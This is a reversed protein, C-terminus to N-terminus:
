DSRRCEATRRPASWPRARSPYRGAGGRPAAHTSRMTGDDSGPTTQHRAEILEPRGLLERLVARREAAFERELTSRAVEDKSSCSRSEPARDDPTRPAGEAVLRDRRQVRKSVREHLLLGVLREQLARALCLMLSDGLHEARTGEADGRVLGLDEGMVVVFRPERFRRDTVPEVAPCFDIAREAFTSAARCSRRPRSASADAERTRPGRDSPVTRGSSARREREDGHAAVRCGFDLLREGPRALEALLEAVRRVQKRHQEPEAQEVHHARVRDRALSSALGARCSRRGVPSLSCARSICPALAETTSRPRASGPPARAYRARGFARCGSSARVGRTRTRDLAAKTRTRRRRRRATTGPTVRFLRMSEASFATSIAPRARCGSVSAPTQAEAGVEVVVKPVWDAELRKASCVSATATSCLRCIHIPVPCLMTPQARNARPSRSRPISSSSAPSSVNRRVPASTFAENKM